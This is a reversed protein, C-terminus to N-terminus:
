IRKRQGQLLLFGLARQYAVATEREHYETSVELRAIEAKLSAVPDGERLLELQGRIWGGLPRGGARERVWEHLDSRMRVTVYTGGRDESM